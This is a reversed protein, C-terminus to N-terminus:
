ADPSRLRSASTPAELDALPLRMILADCGDRYYGRRTHIVSFGEGRYLHQAGHNDIRVELLVQEAGRDRGEEILTRLLLRGLGRRRGARAVALTQVDAFPPVCMLGVYGLLQAAGDHPTGEQVAGEQVAGEQVASEQVAGEAVWYRRTGTQSLEQRFFREPWADVPFLVQELAAVAPVDEETM